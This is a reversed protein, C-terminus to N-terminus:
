RPAAARGAPRASRRRFRAIFNPGTGSASASPAMAACETRCAGAHDLLARAERASCTARSARRRRRAFDDRRPEFGAIHVLVLRRPADRVHQLPSSYGGRRPRCRGSCGRHPPPRARRRRGRARDIRQVPEIRAQGDRRQRFERRDFGPRMTAVTFIMGNATGSLTTRPPRLAQRRRVSETAGQRGSLTPSAAVVSGPRFGETISLVRRMRSSRSFGAPAREARRSARAARHRAREGLRERLSRPSPASRRMAKPAEAIVSLASTMGAAISAAPPRTRCKPMGTSGPLRSSRPSSSPVGPARRAPSRASAPRSRIRSPASGGARRAERHRCLVDGAHADAPQQHLDHRPRLRALRDGRRSALTAAIMRAAPWDRRMPPGFLSRARKSPFGSTRRIASCASAECPRARDDDDGPVAGASMAAASAPRSTRM